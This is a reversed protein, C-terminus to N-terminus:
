TGQTLVSSLQLCLNLPLFPCSSEFFPCSHAQFANYYKKIQIKGVFYNKTEYKGMKEWWQMRYILRNGTTCYIMNKLSYSRSEGGGFKPPFHPHTKCDLHLKGSKSCPSPPQPTSCPWLLCSCSGMKQKLNKKRNKKELVETCRITWHTMYDLFYSLHRSHTVHQFLLMEMWAVTNISCKSYIYCIWSKTSCSLFNSIYYNLSLPILIWCSMWYNLLPLNM